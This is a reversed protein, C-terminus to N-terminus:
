AYFLSLLNDFDCLNTYCPREGSVKHFGLIGHDDKDVSSYLYSQRQYPNEGSLLTEHRRFNNMLSTEDITSLVSINYEAIKTLAKVQFKRKEEPTLECNKEIFSRMDEKSTVPIRDGKVALALLTHGGVDMGKSLPYPIDFVLDIREPFDSTLAAEVMPHLTPPFGFDHSVGMYDSVDICDIDWKKLADVTERSGIISWGCDILKKAFVDVESTDDLSFLAYKKM